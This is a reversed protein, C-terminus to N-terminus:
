LEILACTGTRIWSANGTTSNYSVIMSNGIQVNRIKVNLAGIGENLIITGTLAGTAIAGSAATVQFSFHQNDTFATVTQNGNVLAAGTGTVGSVNILDGVAAVVSAAAVVVAFTYVGNAYSSTISTVSVTATSADYAQLCNNNFDWSVQQNILGGELTAALGPDCAVSLQVASGLEFYNMTQGAAALPVPSQASQIMGSGQSFTTFGLIQAVTTARALPSGTSLGSGNPIYVQVPIGGFMPNTETSAVVGSQLKNRSTTNSQYDGQVYGISQQNFMGAGNTVAMPNITIGSM